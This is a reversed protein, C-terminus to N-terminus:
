LKQAKTIPAFRVIPRGHCFRLMDPRRALPFRCLVRDERVPQTEIAPM